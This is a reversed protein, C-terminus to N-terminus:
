LKERLFDQIYYAWSHLVLDSILNFQKIISHRRVFFGSILTLDLGCEEAAQGLSCFM